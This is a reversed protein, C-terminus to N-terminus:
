PLAASKKLTKSLRNIVIELYQDNMQCLARCFEDLTRIFAAGISNAEDRKSLDFNRILDEAGDILLQKQREWEKIMEQVLNSSAQNPGFLTVINHSDDLRAERGRVFLIRLEKLLEAAKSKVDNPNFFSFMAPTFPSQEEL